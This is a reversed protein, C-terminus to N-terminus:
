AQRACLPRSRASRRRPRTRAAPRRLRARARQYEQNAEAFCGTYCLFNAWGNRV